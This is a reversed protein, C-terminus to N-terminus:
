LLVHILSPVVVIQLHLGNHHVHVYHGLQRCKYCANPFFCVLSTYLISGLLGHGLLSLSSSYRGFDVYPM